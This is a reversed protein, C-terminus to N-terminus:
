PQTKLSRWSRAIEAVGDRVEDLAAPYESVDSLRRQMSRYITALTKALEGGKDFDLGAELATLISRARGLQITVLASKGADFATTATSLATNLSDYLISVLEHPSASAMRSSLDLHRYQDAAAIRNRQMYM